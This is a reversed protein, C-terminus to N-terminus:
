RRPKRVRVNLVWNLSLKKVFEIMKQLQLKYVHTFFYYKGNEHILTGFNMFLFTM